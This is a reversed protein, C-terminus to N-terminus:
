PFHSARRGLHHLNTAQPNCKEEAGVGKWGGFFLAQTVNTKSCSSRGSVMFLFLIEQSRDQGLARCGKAM